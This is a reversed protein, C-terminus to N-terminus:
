WRRGGWAKRSQQVLTEDDNSAYNLVENLIERATLHLCYRRQDTAMVWFHCCGWGVGVGGGSFITTSFYARLGGYLFFIHSTLRAAM